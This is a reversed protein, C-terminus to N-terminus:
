ETGPSVKDESLALANWSCLNVWHIKEKNERRKAKMHASRDKLERIEEGEMFLEVEM